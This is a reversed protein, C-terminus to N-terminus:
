ASTGEAEAHHPPPAPPAGAHAADALAADAPAPAADAALGGADAAPEALGVPTGGWFDEASPGAPQPSRGSTTASQEVVRDFDSRRIRVRRGM